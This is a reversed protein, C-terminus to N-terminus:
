APGPRLRAVVATTLRGAGDDDLLDIRVLGEDPPGVFRARSVIPSVRNQALFRVEIETVVWPLGSSAPQHHEMLEEAAVEAVYSVMAGQLAGAPNLVEPRLEVAVEGTAADRVEVGVAERLPQELPPIAQWHEVAMAVTFDPKPLDGDRRPVRAFGIFCSGWSVGDATLLVECTISRRGARRTISRAEVAPPALAAPIRVSVDSTFTWADPDTDVALGAVVDALFVLASM